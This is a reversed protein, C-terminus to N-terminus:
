HLQTRKLNDIYHDTCRVLIDFVEQFSKENGYYPDPVEGGKGINDYDRMLHVKKKQDPPTALRIMNKVNARDMGFIFDFDDFDKETFQRVCHDITIGHRRAVAITRPDANDGTHYNSTGCSQIKFQKGLGQAEIKHRFIAEAMPSRCINGLCVFLVRIM